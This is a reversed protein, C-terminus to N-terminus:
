LGASLRLCLCLCLSICVWVSVLYVSLCPSMSVLCYVHLSVSVCVSVSVCLCLCVSVPPFFCCFTSKSVCVSLCPSLTTYHASVVPGRLFPVPPLVPQRDKRLTGAGGGKAGSFGSGLCGGAWGKLDAEHLSCLPFNRPRRRPEKCGAQGRSLPVNVAAANRSAAWTDM